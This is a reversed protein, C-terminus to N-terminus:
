KEVDFSGPLRAVETSDKAVDAVGTYVTLWMYTGIYRLDLSAFWCGVYPVNVLRAADAAASFMNHTVVIPTLRTTARTENVAQVILPFVPLLEKHVVEQAIEIKVYDALRPCSRMLSLLFIVLWISKSARM